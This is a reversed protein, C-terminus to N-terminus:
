CRLTITKQDHSSKQFSFFLFKESLTIEMIMTFTSPGLIELKNQQNALLYDQDLNEFTPKSHPFDTEVCNNYLSFAPFVSFFFFFSIALFIQIKKQKRNM